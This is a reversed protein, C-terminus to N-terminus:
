PLPSGLGVVRIRPFRQFDRDETLVEDFGHELALAVIHADHVLNGSVGSEELVRELVGAHRDTEALVSAMPSELIDRVFRWAVAITSPSKFVRAHTVVRIFEYISPWALGFRDGGNALERVRAEASRHKEVDPRHAYVLVNTDIVIPM